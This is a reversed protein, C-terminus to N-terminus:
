PGQCSTRQLSYFPSGALVPFMLTSIGAHSGFMSLSKCSIKLLEQTKPKPCVIVLKLTQLLRLGCAIMVLMITCARGECMLSVDSNWPLVQDLCISCDEPQISVVRATLARVLIEVGQAPPGKLDRFIINPDKQRRFKAYKQLHHDARKWPECRWLWATLFPKRLALTQRLLM